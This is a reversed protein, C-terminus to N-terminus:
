RQKAGLLMEAGGQPPRDLREVKGAPVVQGLGLQGPRLDFLGGAALADGRGVDDPVEGALSLLTPRPRPTTTSARAARAASSATARWRSWLDPRSTPRSRPTPM